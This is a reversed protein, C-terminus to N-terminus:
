DAFVMPGTYVVTVNVNPDILFAEIGGGPLTDGNRTQPSAPSSFSMGVSVWGVAIYDASNWAEFVAYDSRWQAETMGRPDQYTWFAARPNGMMSNTGDDAHEYVRYIHEGAEDGIPGSTSEPFVIAGAWLGLARLAIKPLRPPGSHPQTLRGGGSQPTQSKTNPPSADPANGPRVRSRSSAPSGSRDRRATCGISWSCQYSIDWKPQTALSNEEVPEEIEEEGEMGTPDTANLPDNGVYTYLNFQDNYGIPDTQLVQSSCSKIWHILDGFM